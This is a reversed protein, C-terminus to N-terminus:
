KSATGIQSSVGDAAVALGESGDVNSLHSLCDMQSFSGDLEVIKRKVLYGSLRGGEESKRKKLIFCNWEVLEYDRERKRQLKETENGTKKKKEM